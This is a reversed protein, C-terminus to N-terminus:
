SSRWDVSLTSLTLTNKYRLDINVVANLTQRWLNIQGPAM